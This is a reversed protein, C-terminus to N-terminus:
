NLLWNFNMRLVKGCHQCYVEDHFPDYWADHNKCDTCFIQVSIFTKSEDHNCM